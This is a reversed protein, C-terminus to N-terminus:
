QGSSNRCEDTDIDPSMTNDKFIDHKIINSFANFTAQLAPEIGFGGASSTSSRRRRTHTGVSKSKGKTPIGDVSDYGYCKTTDLSLNIQFLFIYFM